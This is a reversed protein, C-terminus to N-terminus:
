SKPLLISTRYDFKRIKREIKQRALFQIWDSVPIFESNGIGDVIVLRYQGHAFEVAIINHPLLDRSLFLVERLWTKFEEVAASIGQNLGNPLVQELNGPYAGDHNRFIETVIGLGQDTEVTGFYRPVHEWIKPNKKAELFRYTKLEKWQDDYGNLGRFRRWGKALARRAEPTRDPRLVKVCRESHDPHVYCRRTGGVAFPKLHKLDLM